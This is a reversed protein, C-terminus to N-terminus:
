KKISIKKRGKEIIPIKIILVGNKIEAETRSSDVEVPLIIERCFNGWFCEQLYQKNPKKAPNERKGRIIFLDNEVTIEIDDVEIGALAAQLILTSDKEYMDMAPQGDQELWTKQEEQIEEEIELEEKEEEEIELEEKEEEEIELEEKDNDLDVKKFTQETGKKIKNLFDNSM